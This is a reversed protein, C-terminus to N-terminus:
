RRCSAGSCNPTSRRRARSSNHPMAALRGLRELLVKLTEEPVRRIQKHADQWEVKFGTKAALAEIASPTKDPTAPTNITTSM